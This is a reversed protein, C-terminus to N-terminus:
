YQAACSIETSHTNMQRNMVLLRPQGGQLEGRVNADRSDTKVEM